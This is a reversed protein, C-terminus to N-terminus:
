ANNASKFEQLAAQVTKLFADTNMPCGPVKADVPIVDELKKVKEGMNFREILFKIEQRTKEDFVNRSGSPMGTCACSGIAVVKKALRRIEKVQKEQTASTIAGEVFAVDMPGPPRDQRLVKAYRFDIQPLWEAYHDNLLETMMITSDECCSFSFWGAVLKKGSGPQPM